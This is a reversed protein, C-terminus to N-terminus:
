GKWFAGGHCLKFIFGESYVEQIKGTCCEDYKLLMSSMKAEKEDTDSFQFM